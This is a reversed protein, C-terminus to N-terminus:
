GWQQTNLPLHRRRRLTTPQCTCPIDLSQHRRVATHRCTGSAGESRAKDVQAFIDDVEPAIAHIAARRKIESGAGAAAAPSSPTASSPPEHACILAEFIIKAKEPCGLQAYAVILDNYSRRTLCLSSPM